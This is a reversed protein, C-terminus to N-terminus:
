KKRLYVTFDMGTDTWEMYKKLVPHFITPILDVNCVDYHHKEITFNLRASLKEFSKLDFEYLHYPSHMPSLNTVYNTGRLWFYFNFFNPILHQSSPVSIQMIGNPKLWKLAKELSAAPHYLHEFVANFTIVDFSNEEYNADEIMGLSLRDPRMKMVSIAKDYFPKSPELGYSDFGENNFSMMSKGIGAGIDLMKMGEKFPLLKKVNIVLNYIYDPKWEFYIPKWYAEPPTGYHDQLNFPIPLPSTYNLNCNTCKCVTVAIGKKKKPSLGQSTNLRQGLVKHNDTAEGCMECKTIDEFYYRKLATNIIKIKFLPIIFM